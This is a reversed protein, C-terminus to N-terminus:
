GLYNSNGLYEKTEKKSIKPIEEPFKQTNGYSFVWINKQKRSIKRVATNRRSFSSIGPCLNTTVDGGINESIEQEINRSLNKYCRM